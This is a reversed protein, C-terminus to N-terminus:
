SLGVGLRGREKVREDDGGDDDGDVGRAEHTEGQRM